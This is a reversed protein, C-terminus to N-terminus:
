LKLIHYLSKSLGKYKGLYLSKFFPVKKKPTQQVGPQRILTLPDPEFGAQM